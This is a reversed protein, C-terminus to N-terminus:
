KRHIDAHCQRCLWIVQLPASYDRHHADLSKEFYCNSCIKPSVLKGIEVARRVVGRARRKQLSRAEAARNARTTTSKGFNTARYARSRLTNCSRCLYSGTKTGDKAVRRSYPQPM